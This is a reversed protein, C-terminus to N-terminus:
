ESDDNLERIEKGAPLRFRIYNIKIGESLFRKEYYTQFNVVENNWGESYVDESSQEV